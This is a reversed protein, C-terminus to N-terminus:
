TTYEKRYNCISDDMQCPCCGTCYPCKECMCFGERNYKCRGTERNEYLFCYQESEGDCFRIDEPKVLDIKGDEYEVIGVTERIPEEVLGRKYINRIIIRNREGWKHFLAKKGDAYCPRREIRITIDGIGM